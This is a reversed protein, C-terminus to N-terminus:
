INVGLGPCHAVLAVKTTVILVLISGLKVSFKIRHLPSVGGINLLMEGFPMEPLQFGLTM